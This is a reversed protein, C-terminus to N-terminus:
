NAHPLDRFRGTEFLGAPDFARRIRAELAAVGASPPHFVPLGAGYEPACRILTAHGGAQEAVARILAPDGAFTTWILGGAWDLLWPAGGPEIAALVARAGSPPVNIRWLPAGQPLPELTRLDAWLADAAAEDPADVPGYRGLLAEIMACRAVVSPGFGQIRLATLSRGGGADPVYAAAAIEAQSGMAAAMTRLADDPSLGAIMRTASVRPRPLVKLTLETMAFLRGWSGAALKPLDYGTVNKVVRAGAVLLEGRGSVATFGLLHDRASGSSVRQSGAVGAAVVGGITAAGAPRGFLPGHDFPDFALMQGEGAVLAQVEDLPTGARVTLVLEAPDYDVIGTFGAMDLRVSEEVSGGIGDKSGGGRIALRTGSAAADAVAACLEAADRPRLIDITPTM